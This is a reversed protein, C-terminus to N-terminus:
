YGKKFFMYPIAATEVLSPLMDDVSYVSETDFQTISRFYDSFKWHRRWVGLLGVPFDTALRIWSVGARAKAPRVPRGLQDQFLMSAFDVGAAAGLSHYGWTRANVDLLKYEGDRSDFKFELEVLGYYNIACLFRQALDELEASEISEVLTCSRGFQPPHQRKYQTVMSGIARGEKFFACVGYLQESGGPILDQIVVEGPPVLAAAQVFRRALEEKNDARWAKVKTAAVFQDKIAPKIVLPFNGTIDALDAVTRPYWTNPTFIGLERAKQYTNRKDWAWQVSEWPPAAVRFNASLAERHKSLTAVTEDRTPYLVWGDLNFRRGVTMISDITSQETRLNKVRISHTAYRSFSAISWEDDMICVPIGRRGLSRAIGLAQFDGGIVFGGVKNDSPHLPHVGGAASILNV